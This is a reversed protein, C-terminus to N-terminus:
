YISSGDKWSSIDAFLKLTRLNKVLLNLDVEGSYDFDLREIPKDYSFTNSVDKGIQANLYACSSDNSFIEPVTSYHALEYPHNLGLLHYKISSKMWPRMWHVFANRRISDNMSHNDTWYDCYEPEPTLRCSLGIWEVSNAVANHCDLIENNSNGHLTGFVSMSKSLTHKVEYAFELIAKATKPGDKYVEPAMLVNAGSKEAFRFLDSSTYNNGPLEYDSNDLIITDGRRSLKKYFNAYDDDKEVIHALILHLRQRHAIERLFKTPVIPILEM